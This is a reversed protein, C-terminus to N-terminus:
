GRDASAARGVRLVLEVDKEDFRDARFSLRAGNLFAGLRREDKSRLYLFLRRAAGPTPTTSPSSWSAQGHATSGHATSGHATSGHATSGNEHARSYKMLSEGYLVCQAPHFHNCPRPSHEGTASATYVGKHTAVRTASGVVVPDLWLGGGGGGSAARL